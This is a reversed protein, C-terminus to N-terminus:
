CSNFRDVLTVTYELPEQLVLITEEKTMRLAAFFRDKAVLYLDKVENLIVVSGNQLLIELINFADPGFHGGCITLFLKPGQRLLQPM